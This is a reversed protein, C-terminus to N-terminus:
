LATYAAEINISMKIQKVMTEFEEKFLKVFTTLHEIRRKRLDIAMNGSSYDFDQRSLQILEALYLHYAIGNLLCSTRPLREEFIMDVFPPTENYKMVTFRVAHGIEDDSFTLDLELPNDEVTRDWLFHRVDEVDILGYRRRDPVTPAPKDSM